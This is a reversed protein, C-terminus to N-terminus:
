FIEFVNKIAGRGYVRREQSINKCIIKFIDLDLHSISIMKSTIPMGLWDVINLHFIIMWTDRLMM